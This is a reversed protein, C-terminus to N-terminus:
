LTWTLRALDKGVHWKEIWTSERIWQFRSQMSSSMIQNLRACILSLRFCSTTRRSPPPFCQWKWAVTRCTRHFFFFIYVPGRDSVPSGEPLFYFGSPKGTKRRELNRLHIAPCLCMLLAGGVESGASHYSGRPVIRWGKFRVLNQTRLSQECLSM